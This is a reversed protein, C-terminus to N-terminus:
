SASVGSGFSTGLSRHYAAGAVGGDADLDPHRNRTSLGM